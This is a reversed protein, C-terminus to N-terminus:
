FNVSPRTWSSSEIIDEIVEKAKSSFMMKQRVLDIGAINKEM